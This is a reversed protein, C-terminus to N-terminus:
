PKQVCLYVSSKGTDANGITVRYNLPGFRCAVMEEPMEEPIRVPVLYVGIKTPHPRRGGVTIPVENLPRLNFALASGYTQPQLRHIGIAWLYVIEGPQAPNGLDVFTGDEHTVAADGSCKSPYLPAIPLTCTTMTRPQAPTYRFNSLLGPMGDVWVKLIPECLSTAKENIFEPPIYVTVIRYDNSVYFGSVIDIRLIPIATELVGCGQYTVQIGNLETPLEVGDPVLAREASVGRVHLSLLMGPSIPYPVVSNTSKEDIIVAAPDQASGVVGLVTWLLLCRTNM